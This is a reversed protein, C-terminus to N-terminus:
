LCYGTAKKGRMRPLTPAQQFVTTPVRPPPAAAGPRVAASLPLASLGSWQQVLVQSLLDEDKSRVALSLANRGSSSSANAGANMLYSALESDGDQVAIM